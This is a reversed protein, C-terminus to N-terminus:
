KKESLITKIAIQEAGNITLFGNMKISLTNYKIGLRSAMKKYGYELVRQKLSERQKDTM